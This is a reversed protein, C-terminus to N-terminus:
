AAGIVTNAILSDRCKFTLNGERFHHESICQYMATHLRQVTATNSQLRQVSGSFSQGCLYFPSRFKKTMRARLLLDKEPTELAIIEQNSEVLTQLARCVDARLETQKYLLNALLEAFSQDFAQTLDRPLNCYGPLLAWIQQIITEFIKIEMTKESSGNDIVKQYMAESLPVFESRFHALNTNLVHDRLIPLLWARGSQGPLRKVLNLPLIGLISEPGM